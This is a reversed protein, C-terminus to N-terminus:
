AEASAYPTSVKLDISRFNVEIYTAPHRHHLPLVSAQPAKISPEIGELCGRAYISSFQLRPSSVIVQFTMRSTVKSVARCTAPSRRARTASGRQAPCTTSSLKEIKVYTKRIRVESCLLLYRYTPIHLFKSFRM